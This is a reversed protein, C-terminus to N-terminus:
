QDRRMAGYDEFSKLARKSAREVRTSNQFAEWMRLVFPEWVSRKARRKRHERSIAQGMIGLPMDVAMDKVNRPSDVAASEM